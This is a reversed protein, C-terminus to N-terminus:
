VEICWQGPQMFDFVGGADMLFRSSQFRPSGESHESLSEAIICYNLIEGLSM